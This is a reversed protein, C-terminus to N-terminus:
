SIFVTVSWSFILLWPQIGSAVFTVLTAVQKSYSTLIQEQCKKGLKFQKSEKKIRILILRITAARLVSRGSKSVLRSQETPNVSVSSSAVVLRLSVQNRVSLLVATVHLSDQM